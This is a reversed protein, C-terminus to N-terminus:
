GILGLNKFLILAEYHNPIKGFFLVEDSKLASSFIGNRTKRETRYDFDSSSIIKYLSHQNDLKDLVLCTIEINAKKWTYIESHYQDCPYFNFNRPDFKENKDENDKMMKLYEPFIKLIFNKLKPLIFIGSLGDFEKKILYDFDDLVDKKYIKGQFVKSNTLFKSLSKINFINKDIM